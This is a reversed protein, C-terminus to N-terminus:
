AGGPASKGHQVCSKAAELHLSLASSQAPSNPVRETGAIQRVATARM